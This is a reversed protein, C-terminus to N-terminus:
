KEELIELKTNSTESKSEFKAARAKRLFSKAESSVRRVVDQVQRRTQRLDDFCATVFFNSQCQLEKDHIFNQLASQVQDVKGLATEAVESASISGAIFERNLEATMKELLTHEVKATSNQALAPM